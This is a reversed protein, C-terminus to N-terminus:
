WQNRCKDIGQGGRETKGNRRQGIEGKNLLKKCAILVLHLRERQHNGVRNTKTYEGNHAHVSAKVADFVGVKECSDKQAHDGTNATTHQAVNKRHIQGFNKYFVKVSARRNCARHENVENANAAAVDEEGRNHTGRRYNREAKQREEQTPIQWLGFIGDFFFFLM